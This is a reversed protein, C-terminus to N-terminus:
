SSKIANLLRTSVTGPKATACVRRDRPARKTSWTYSPEAGLCDQQLRDIHVKRKAPHDDRAQAQM